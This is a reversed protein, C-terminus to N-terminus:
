FDMVIKFLGDRGFIDLVSGASALPMHMHTYRPDARHDSIAYLYALIERPFWPEYALTTFFIFAHVGLPRIEELTEDNKLPHSDDDDLDDLWDDYEEEDETPVSRAIKVLWHDRHEEPVEVHLDNNNILIFSLWRAIETAGRSGYLRYFEEVTGVFGKPM